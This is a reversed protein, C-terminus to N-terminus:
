AGVRAEVAGSEEEPLDYVLRDIERGLEAGDDRNRIPM